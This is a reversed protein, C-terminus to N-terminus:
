EFIRAIDAISVGEKEARLQFYIVAVLVGQFAQIVVTLVLSLIGNALAGFAPGVINTLVYSVINLVIATLFIAGFVHWRRGKTLERSRRM